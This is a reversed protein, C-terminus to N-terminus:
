YTAGEPVVIFDVRRNAKEQGKEISAEGTRTSIRSADVGKEVIYKKALDARTQALKAAKPEKKDAFGVIVLKANPDNKLRLAVDDGVRKCANDFRSAGAKNYGCDGAKAAQPPPPPQQVDVNTSADATGGRGDSVSCKVTYSGPALGTSDFEAKPGNGTVQGGTASYSYTLPDGDPDSATATIGTREGPMIPSRDTACSITPPQNPKKNVAIDAACTATGGKGDDVKATVTYTGEALGATNFRADPGTGEVTGGSATYSYTITDNDPDSANVHVTVVDNSGAFVSTPSASCAAVPPHNPPPPPNPIGFRLVIGTGLRLNNQRAEPNLSPGSFNTMLYDIQAFRWALYKNFVVDVGGGAALAFATQNSAGTLPGGARAGGFLFEAFPVFHDFRRMNLRPGFLFTTLGGDNKVGNVDRTFTYGALEATLGLYRTPNFTFGGYGGHNNFNGFGSGPNFNVYSYGASIEYRPLLQGPASDDTASKKSSAQPGPFPTAKPVAPLAFVGRTSRSVSAPAAPANATTATAPQVASDDKQQAFVPLAFVLAAVAAATCWKRM